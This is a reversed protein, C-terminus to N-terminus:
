MRKLEGYRGTVNGLGEQAAENGLGPAFQELEDEGM